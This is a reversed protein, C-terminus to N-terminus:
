APPAGAPIVLVPVDSIAALRAGLHGGVCGTAALWMRSARSLPAGPVVIARCCRRRAIEVIAMPDTSISVECDVELGLRSLRERMTELRREAAATLQRIVSGKMIGRTRVSEPEPMVALLTVRGALGSVASVIASALDAEAHGALVVLHSSHAVSSAPFEASHKLM